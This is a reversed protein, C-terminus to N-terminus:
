EHFSRMTAKSFDESSYETLIAQKFDDWVLCHLSQLERIRTRIDMESVKYFNSIISVDNVGLVEMENYYVKLYKSINTGNFMGVNERVGHLAQLIQDQNMKEIFLRVLDITGSTAM